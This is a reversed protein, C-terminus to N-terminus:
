AASRPIPNENDVLEPWIQWWDSPRLKRRSVGTRQEIQVCRNPPIPRTGNVWQSVTPPSVGLLRALAGTGEAAECAEVIGATEIGM